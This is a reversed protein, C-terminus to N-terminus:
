CSWWICYTGTKSPFDARILSVLTNKGM